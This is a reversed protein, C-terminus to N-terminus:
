QKEIKNIIEKFLIELQDTKINQLKIRTNRIFHKKEKSAKRFTDEASQKPTKDTRNYIIDRLGEEYIEVIKEYMENEAHKLVSETALDFYFYSEKM